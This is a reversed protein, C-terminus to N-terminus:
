KLGCEPHKEAEERLKSIDFERTVVQGTLFPTFQFSATPSSLLSQIFQLREPETKGYYAFTATDGYPIWTTAQKTGGIKMTLTLAGNRPALGANEESLAEGASFLLLHGIKNGKQACELTLTPQKEETSLLHYSKATIKMGVSNKGPTVEVDQGLAHLSCFIVVALWSAKM